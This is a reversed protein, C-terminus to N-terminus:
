MICSRDLSGMRQRLTSLGTLFVEILRELGDEVKHLLRHVSDATWGCIGVLIRRRGCGESTERSECGMINLRPYSGMLTCSLYGPILEEVMHLLM